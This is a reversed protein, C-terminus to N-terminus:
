LSPSSTLLQHSIFILKFSIKTDPIGIPTTKSKLFHQIGYALFIRTHSNTGGKRCKYMRIYIGADQM